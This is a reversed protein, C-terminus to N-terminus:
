RGRRDVRFRGEPDEGVAFAPVVLREVGDTSEFQFQVEAAMGPKVDETDEDLRAVVPYTTASGSSAVGVESVTAAFSRGELDSVSVDVTQGTQVLSILAGPVSIEVEPRSGSSLVVITQGTSVNENREVLVEAIAGSVPATLRTYNVQNQALELRKEVSRVSASASEYATRAADLDNQSANNNEYLGRIRDLNAEANRAEARGRALSAQADEVQLQYDTADLRALTQGVGVREGVNVPISQVTGAVKFSLRSELGARATGSFTRARGSGSAFVQMTRVPRLALEEPPEGGCSTTTTGVLLAALTLLLPRRLIHRSHTM